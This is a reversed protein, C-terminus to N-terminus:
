IDYPEKAPNWDINIWLLPLNQLLLGKIIYPIYRPKNWYNRQWQNFFCSFLFLANVENEIFNNEIITNKKSNLLFIGYKNNSVINNNKIIAYNCDSQLLIGSHFFGGRGNHSITNNYIKLGSNFSIDKIGTYLIGTGNNYSINCNFIKFNQVFSIRFGALNHRINCGEFSINTSPNFHGVFYIEDDNNEILSNKVYINHSDTSYISSKSNNHIICNNVKSTSTNIYNIGHRNKSIICNSITIDNNYLIYLGANGSKNSSNIIMISSIYVYSASINVANSIKNGDIITTERNEGILNISKNININEYYPASNDYVYVTDGPNADDIADQISTYNGPESGGVYLTDGKSSCETEKIQINFGSAFSAGFFLISLLIGIIKKKM